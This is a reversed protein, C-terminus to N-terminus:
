AEVDKPDTLLHLGNVVEQLRAPSLMGIKETLESKDLTILHSVNVVSAKPLNAEGKALRVNGPANARALNSTLSCLVVTQIKSRNFVNNQVVVHPHRYGPVSGKPPGLSVWYVEGQRIM